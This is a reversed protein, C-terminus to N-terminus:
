YYSRQMIFYRGQQSVTSGQIIYRYDHYWINKQTIFEFSSNLFLKM